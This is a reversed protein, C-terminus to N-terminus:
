VPNSASELRLRQACFTRKRADFFGQSERTLDFITTVEGKGMKKAAFQQQLAIGCVGRRGLFGELGREGDRLLLARAAPAQARRQRESLEVLRGAAGGLRM